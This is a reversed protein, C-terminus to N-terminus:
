VRERCSARGIQFGWVPPRGLKSYLPLLYDLVIARWAPLAGVTALWLLIVVPAVAVASPFVVGALASASSRWVQVAVVITLFGAFVLAHPSRFLTTYPFLTRGQTSRPPRRRM